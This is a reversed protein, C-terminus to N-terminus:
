RGRAAALCVIMKSGWARTLVAYEAQQALLEAYTTATFTYVPFPGADCKLPTPNTIRAPTPTSSSPLM